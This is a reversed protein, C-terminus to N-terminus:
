HVHKEKEKLCLVEDLHLMDVPKMRCFVSVPRRLYKWADTLLKARNSVGNATRPWASMRRNILEASTMEMLCFASSMPLLLLLHFISAMVFM